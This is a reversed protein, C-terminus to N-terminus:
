FNVGATGAVSVASNGEFPVLLRGDAGVFVPSDPILYAVTLAPYVLGTNTAGDRMLAGVGGYPRILMPGAGIDYGVEASPYYARELGRDDNGTHYMFNAGVYVPTRFTYGVRAGVGFGYGATAAGVQPALTWRDGRVDRRAEARSEVVDRRSDYNAATTRTTSVRTDADRDKNEVKVHREDAFSTAALTFSLASLGMVISAKM